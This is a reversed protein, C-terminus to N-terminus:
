GMGVLIWISYGKDVGPNLFSLTVFVLSLFTATPQIILTRKLDIRNRAVKYLVIPVLYDPVPILSFIMSKKRTILMSKM